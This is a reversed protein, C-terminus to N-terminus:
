RVGHEAAARALRDNVTAAEGTGGTMASVMLPARLSAGLLEVDLAVDGLDREPLARHRLRLAEFGAGRRHM